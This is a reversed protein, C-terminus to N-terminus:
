VHDHDTASGGTDFEGTLKLVEELLVELLPNRLDLVVEMHGKHLGQRVYARDGEQIPFSQSM